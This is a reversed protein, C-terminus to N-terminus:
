RGNCKGLRTLREKHEIIWAVRGEILQKTDVVSTHDDAIETIAGNNGVVAVHQNWFIVVRNLVEGVQRRRVKRGLCLRDSDVGPAKGIDDAKVGVIGGAKGM